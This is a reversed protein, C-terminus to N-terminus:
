RGPRHRSPSEAWQPRAHTPCLSVYWRTEPWRVKRCGPSTGTDSKAAKVAEMRQQSAPPRETGHRSLWSVCAYCVLKPQKYNFYAKREKVSRTNGCRFCVRVRRAGAGACPAHAAHPCTALPGARM